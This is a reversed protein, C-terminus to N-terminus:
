REGSEEESAKAFIGKEAFEDVACRLHGEVSVDKIQQAWDWSFHSIDHFM